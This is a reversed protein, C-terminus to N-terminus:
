LGAVRRSSSGRGKGESCWPLAGDQGEMSGAGDDRLTYLAKYTQVLGSYGQSVCWTLWPGVGEGEKGKGEWKKNRM